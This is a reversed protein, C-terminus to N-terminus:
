FAKQQNQPTSLLVDHKVMNKVILQGYEHGMTESSSPAFSQTQVSYVLQQTKMDYLNSEWFYKTETVYYGPEYIRQYLTSRYNWFRSYYSGYPSYYLHGPVYKREKQKDLLVITLVADIGSGAIKALAENENMKDFVKPGYEQLSSVAHYGQGILDGVLHNEMNEQLRRDSELILGLVLIKNYPRATVETSKWTSTIKSTSCGSLLLTALLIPLAIKKM